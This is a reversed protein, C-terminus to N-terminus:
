DFLKGITDVAAKVANMRAEHAAAVTKGHAEVLKVDANQAVYNVSDQDWEAHTYAVIKVKTDNGAKLEKAVNEFMADWNFIDKEKRAAPVDPADKVLDISGSLTMVDLTVTDNIFDSIKSKLSKKAGAADMPKNATVKKAAVKKAVVGPM